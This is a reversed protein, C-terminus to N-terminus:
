PFILGPPLVIIRPRPRWQHWGLTGGAAAILKPEAQDLSRLWLGSGTLQYLIKGGDPSWKPFRADGNHHTLRTQATSSLAQLVIERASPYQNSHYAIRTGDPSWDPWEFDASAPNPIPLLEGTWDTGISNVFIRWGNMRKSQYAVRDGSPAWVVATDPVLNATVRAEGSGDANITLIELGVNTTARHFAIRSGVPSWKPTLDSYESNTIKKQSTGDANMVYISSTAAGARTSSFAIRTGDSSWTPSRSNGDTTLKKRDTGDGNMVTINRQIPSGTEYAEYAIRAGDPSWSPADGGFGMTGQVLLKEGSGDENYRYISGGTVRIIFQDLTRVPVDKSLAGSKATVTTTSGWLRGTVLGETLDVTAVSNSASSWTVVAGEIPAGNADVVRAELQMTLGEGVAVSDPSVVIAVPVQEVEVAVTDAVEGASAIVRTGGWAVGTVLGSDDVRAIATDASTWTLAAGEIATDNSDLVAAGLRATDGIALAVSDPSLTVTAPVQEVAVAATDALTGSSAVIRAKGAGAAFVWGSANVRAVATDTSAWAISADEIAAGKQDKVTATLRTSDQLAAFAHASTSLAITTPKPPDDKGPDTPSKKDGCAILALLVLVGFASRRSIALTRM